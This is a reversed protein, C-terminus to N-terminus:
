KSKTKKGSREASPQQPTARGKEPKASKTPKAERPREAAATPTGSPASQQPILALSVLHNQDPAILISAVRAAAPVAFRLQMSRSQGPALDIDGAAPAAPARTKGTREAGRAGPTAGAKAGKSETRKPSREARKSSAPTAAPATAPAVAPTAADVAAQHLGGSADRVRFMSPALRLPASSLNQMGIPADVYREGAPAKGAAPDTLQLPVFRALPRGNQVFYVMGSTPASSQRDIGSAAAGKKGPAAQGSAKALKKVSKAVLPKPANATPTAAGSWARWL